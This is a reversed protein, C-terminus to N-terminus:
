KLWGKKRREIKRMEADAPPARGPKNQEFGDGLREEADLEGRMAEVAQDRTNGWSTLNFQPCYAIWRTHGLTPYIAVAIANMKRLDM